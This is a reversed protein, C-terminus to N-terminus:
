VNEQQWLEVSALVQLVHDHKAGQRAEDILAKLREPQVHARSTSEPGLLVREVSELFSQRM